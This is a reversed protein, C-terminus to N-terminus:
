KGLRLCDLLTGAGCHCIILSAQEYNEKLSPKYRFFEGNSPEYQGSFIIILISGVLKIFLTLIAEM